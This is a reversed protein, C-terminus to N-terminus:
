HWFSLNSTDSISILAEGKDILKGDANFSEVSIPISGNINPNTMKITVWMLQHGDVVTFNNLTIITRDTGFKGCLVSDLEDFNFGSNITCNPAITLFDDHM